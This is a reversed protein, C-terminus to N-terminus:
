SGLGGVWGQRMRMMSAPVCCTGISVAGGQETADSSGEIELKEHEAAAGVGGEVPAATAAIIELTNPQQVAGFELGFWEEDKRAVKRSVESEDGGDSALEGGVETLDAAM